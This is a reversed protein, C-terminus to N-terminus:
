IPGFALGPPVRGPRRRGRRTRYRPVPSQQVRGPWGAPQVPVAVTRDPGTGVWRRAQLLVGPAPVASPIGTMGATLKRWVGPYGLEVFLCAALLLYVVARSPLDRIRSQVEKTQALAEDVMEFPM